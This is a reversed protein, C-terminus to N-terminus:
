YAMPWGRWIVAIVLDCASRVFGNSLYVTGYTTLIRIMLKLTLWLNLLPPHHPHSALIVLSLLLHLVDDIFLTMRTQPHPSQPVVITPPMVYMQTTAPPTLTQRHCTNVAPTPMQRRCHVVAITACNVTICNVAANSPPLPCHHHHAPAKITAVTNSPM